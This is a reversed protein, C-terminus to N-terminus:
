NSESRALLVCFRRGEKCEYIAAQPENISVTLFEYLIYVFKAFFRAAVEFHSTGSSHCSALGM